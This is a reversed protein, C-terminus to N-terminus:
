TGEQMAVGFSCVPSSAALMRIGGNGNEPVTDQNKGDKNKASTAAASVASGFLSLKVGEEVKAPVWPKASLSMQLVQQEMKAVAM